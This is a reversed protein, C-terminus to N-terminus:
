RILERGPTRSPTDVTQISLRSRLDRPMSRDSTVLIQSNILAAQVVLYIPLRLQGLRIRNHDSGALLRLL